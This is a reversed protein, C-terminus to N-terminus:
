FYVYNDIGSIDICFVVLRAETSTASKPMTVLFDLMASSQMEAIEEPELDIINVFQCFECAWVSGIFILSLCHCIRV